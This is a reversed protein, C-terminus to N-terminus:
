ARPSQLLSFPLLSHIHSSSIHTHGIESAVSLSLPHRPAAWYLCNGYGSKKKKKKCSWSQMSAFFCQCESSTFYVTISVHPNFDLSVAVCLPIQHSFVFLLLFQSSHSNRILMYFLQLKGLSLCSQCISSFLYTSLLLLSSGLLLKSTSVSSM